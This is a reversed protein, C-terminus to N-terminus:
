LHHQVTLPEMATQLIIIIRKHIRYAMSQQAQMQPFYYYYPVNNSINTSNNSNTTIASGNPLATATANSPVGVSTSPPNSANSDSGSSQFSEQVQYMQPQSQLQQQSQSQPQQYYQPYPWQEPVVYQYSVPMLPQVSQGLYQQQQQQQQTSQGITSESNSVASMNSEQRMRNSKIDNTNIPNGIPM